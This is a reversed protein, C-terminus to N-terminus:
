PTVHIVDDLGETKSPPQLHRAMDQVVQESVFKARARNRTLAVELPTDLFVAVCTPRFGALRSVSLVHKRRYDSTLAMSDLVVSRGAQLHEAALRYAELWVLDEKAPDLAPPFEGYVNRRILDLAVISSSASLYRVAWTTKGAGPIGVMLYLTPIL